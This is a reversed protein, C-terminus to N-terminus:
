VLLGLWCALEYAALLLLCRGLFAPLETMSMQENLGLCAAHWYGAQRRPARWGLLKIRERESWTLRLDSAGVCKHRQNKCGSERSKM